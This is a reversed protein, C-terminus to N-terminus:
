EKPSRRWLFHTLNWHTVDHKFNPNSDSVCEECEEADVVNRLYTEIKRGLDKERLREFLAQKSVQGRGECFPCPIADCGTNKPVESM